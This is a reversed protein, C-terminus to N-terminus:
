PQLEEVVIRLLNADGAMTDGVATGTRQLFLRLPEGAIVGDIQASTFDITALQVDGLVGPATSAAATQLAAFSDTLINNPTVNSDREFAAAWIVDGAIATQAVWYVNVRLSSGATYGPPLFRQWPIGELVADDFSLVSHTGQARAQPNNIVGAGLDIKKFVPDTADCMFSINNLFGPDKWVVGLPSTSDAVLVQDDTGVPVRELEEIDNVVYLDGKTTAVGLAGVRPTSM